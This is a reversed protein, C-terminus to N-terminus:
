PLIVDPLLPISRVLNQLTKPAVPLSNPDVSNGYIPFDGCGYLTGTSGYVRFEEWSLYKVM